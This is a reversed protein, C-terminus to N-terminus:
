SLGSIDYSSGVAAKRCAVYLKLKTELTEGGHLTRLVDWLQFAVAATSNDPMSTVRIDQTSM